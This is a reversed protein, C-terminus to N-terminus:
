KKKSSAQLAVARGGVECGGLASAFELMRQSRAVWSSVSASSSSSVTAALSASVSGNDVTTSPSSATSPEHLHFLLSVKSNERGLFPQLVRTVCSQEFPVVKEQNSLAVMVLALSDLDNVVKEVAETSPHESSVPASVAFPNFSPM